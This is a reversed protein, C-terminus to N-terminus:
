RNIKEKAVDRFTCQFIETGYPIGKMLKGTM